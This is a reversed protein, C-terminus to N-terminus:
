IDILGQRLIDPSCIKWVMNASCYGDCRFLIKANIPVIGISIEWGIAASGRFVKSSSSIRRANQIAGSVRSLLKRKGGRAPLKQRKGGLSPPSASAAPRFLRKRKSGPPQPKRKGGPAPFKQCKSGPSPSASAAPRLPKRKGGSAPLKQRKSGPSPPKGHRFCRAFLDAPNSRCIQSSFNM